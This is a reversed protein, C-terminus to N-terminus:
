RREGREERRRGGERERGREREREREGERERGREREGGEGGGGEERGGERGGERDESGRREGTRAELRNTYVLLLVFSRSISSYLGLPHQIFVVRHSLGLLPSIKHTLLIRWLFVTNMYRPVSPSPLKLAASGREKDTQCLCM